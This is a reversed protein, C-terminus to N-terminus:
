CRDDIYDHIERIKDHKEKMMGGEGLTPVVAIGKSPTNADVKISSLGGVVSDELEELLSGGSSPTRAQGFRGGSQKSPTAPSNMEPFENQLPELPLWGEPNEPNGTVSGLLNSNDKNQTPNGQAEVVSAQLATFALGVMLFYVLKKM